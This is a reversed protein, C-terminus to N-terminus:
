GGYNNGGCCRVKNSTSLACANNDGTTIAISGVCWGDLCRDRVFVDGFGNADGNVLNSADSDFVVYRGDSSIGPAYSPGNGLTGDPAISVLSTQGTFQDYVFIDTMGNTDGDTLNSANSQFAVYRGDSSLAPEASNDNGETGNSAISVRITQGTQQNHVFIDSVGNTDGGVLNSSTSLFAIYQGDASLCLGNQGSTGNGQTGDSAVSARVTQGTQWDHVFVDALGNTDNGVLNTSTSWFAVYRGDSSVNPEYSHSDGHTGDSSMSVLTTQGTQLDRVFVDQGLNTDDSILNNAGSQFAVYRGDASITPNWSDGDGQIGSSSVSVRTTQGTQQDHVFIDAKGNTDGSVLSNALSNFAVYRGDASIASYHSSSNANGQTGDSAVSARINQGTQQGHVFVDWMGNTDDAVLNSATSHFGVYNGDASIFPWNSEGNGQAGDSALSVLRTIGAQAVAPLVLPSEPLAANVPASSSLLSLILIVIFSQSLKRKM